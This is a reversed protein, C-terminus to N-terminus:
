YVVGYKEKIEEISMDEVSKETKDVHSSPRMASEAAQKALEKKESAVASEVSKTFPKMLKDVLSTVSTTPNGRVAHYVTTTVSDNLDPDFSDSLPDLQPYKLVAEKAENNIRNIAKEKEIEMRTLARLDDLTLDREGEGYNPTNPEYNNLGQTFTELKTSLDEVKEQLQKKDRVLGQIRKSAGTEKKEGEEQNAEEETPQDVENSEANDPESTNTEVISSETANNLEVDNNETLNQEEPM